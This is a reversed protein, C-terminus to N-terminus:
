RGGSGILCSCCFRYLPADSLKLIIEDIRPPLVCVSGSVLLRAGPPQRVVALALGRVACGGSLGGRWGLLPLGVLLLAAVGGWGGPCFWLLFCCAQRVPGGFGAASKSHSGDGLSTWYILPLTSQVVGSM